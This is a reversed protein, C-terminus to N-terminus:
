FKFNKRTKLDLKYNQKIKNFLEDYVIELYPEHFEYHNKLNILIRTLNMISSDIRKGEREEKELNKKTKEFLEAIFSSELESTFIKKDKIEPYILITVDKKNSNAFHISTLLALSLVIIIISNKLKLKKKM